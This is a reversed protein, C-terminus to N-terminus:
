AASVEDAAILANLEFAPEALGRDMGASFSDVIWCVKAPGRHGAVVVASM